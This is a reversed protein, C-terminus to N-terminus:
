AFPVMCLDIDPSNGQAENPSSPPFFQLIIPSRRNLAYMFASTDHGLVLSRGAESMMCTMAELSRRSPVTHEPAAAANLNYHAWIHFGPATRAWVLRLKRLSAADRTLQRGPRTMVGDSAIGEPIDHGRQSISKVRRVSSGFVTPYLQTASFVVKGM